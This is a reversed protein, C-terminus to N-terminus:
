VAVIPRARHPLTSQFGDVVYTIRKSAPRARHPRTSQFMIACVCSSATRPRARHPRTSQFLPFTMLACTQFTAGQAPAHISVDPGPSSYVSDDDRGTRARPNFCRLYVLCQQSSLRARHPRTSQFQLLCNWFANKLRRARHPRTSQFESAKIMTLPVNM